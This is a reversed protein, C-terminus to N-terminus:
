PFSRALYPDRHASASSFQVPRLARMLDDYFVGLSPGAAVLLM